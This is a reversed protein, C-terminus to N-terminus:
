PWAVRVNIYVDQDFLKKGARKEMVALLLAVRSSDMGGVTRKPVTYFRDRICM